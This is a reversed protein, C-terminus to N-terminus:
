GDQGTSQDEPVVDRKFVSPRNAIAIAIAYLLFVVSFLASLWVIVDRRGFERFLRFLSYVEIFFPTIFAAWQLVRTSIRLTRDLRDGTPFLLPGFLSSSHPILLRNLGTSHLGKACIRTAEHYVARMFLFRVGLMVSDYILFAFLVPLAKQILSLDKIQFPGVQANIIAARNLLEFTAATLLLLFVSRRQADSIDKMSAQLSVMYDKAERYDKHFAGEVLRRISPAQRATRETTTM